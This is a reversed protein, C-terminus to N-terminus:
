PAMKATVDKGLRKSLYSLLMGYIPLIIVASVLVKILTQDTAIYVWNQAMFTDASEHFAVAFFAFTDIINAVISAGFPAAWWATYRERVKQFVYVDLLNSLLYATGSAIGIRIAVSEPAGTLYVVLISVLIAPIYAFAVIKRAQHKGLLRVTLDTAVVILPFSFASWTLALGLVTVPLTVLYNSLAIIVLHLVVLKATLSDFKFM